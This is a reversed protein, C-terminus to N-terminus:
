LQGAKKFKESEMFADLILVIQKRKPPPLKEVQSSRRWLRNDSTRGPDKSEHACEDNHNKGHCSRRSSYTREYQLV